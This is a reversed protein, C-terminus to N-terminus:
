ARSSRPPRQRAQKRNEQILRGLPSRLLYKDSLPEPWLDSRDIKRFRSLWDTLRMNVSIIYDAEDKLLRLSIGRIPIEKLEGNAAQSRDKSYSMDSPSLGTWSGHLLNNRDSNAQGMEKYVTEAHKRLRAAADERKPDTTIPLPRTAQIALFYFFEIRSNANQMLWEIAEGEYHSTGLLATITRTLQAELDAFVFAIEGLPRYLKRFIPDPEVEARRVPRIPENRARAM